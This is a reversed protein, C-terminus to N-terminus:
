NWAVGSPVPETREELSELLLQATRAQVLPPSGPPRVPPLMIRALTARGEEIMLSGDIRIAEGDRAIAARFEVGPAVGPIEATGDRRLRVSKAMVWGEPRVSARLRQAKEFAAKRLATEPDAPDGFANTERLLQLADEKKQEESVDAPDPQVRSEPGRIVPKEALGSADRYLSMAYVSQTGSASADEVRVFLRGAAPITILAENPGGHELKSPTAQVFVAQGAYTVHARWDGAGPLDIEFAGAANARVLPLKLVEPRAEPKTQGPRLFLVEHYAMPVGYANVVNGTVHLTPDLEVVTRVPNASDVVILDTWEPYGDVQVRVRWSGPAFESWTAAGVARLWGSDETAGELVAEIEAGELPKGTSADVVRVTWTNERAPGLDVAPADPLTAASESAAAAPAEASSRDVGTTADGDPLLVLWLAAAAALVPVLFLFRKNM